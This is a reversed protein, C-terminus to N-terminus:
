SYPINGWAFMYLAMATVKFTKSVGPLLEPERENLHHHIEPAHLGPLGSLTESLGGM